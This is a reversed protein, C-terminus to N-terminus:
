EVYLNFMNVEYGRLKLYTFLQSRHHFMHTVSETFWHAQTASHEHYFPTTKKTFFEDESMALLYSICKQYGQEMAHALSEATDLRNYKQELQRIADEKKEQMIFLDVEPIAVLHCALEHLTRMNPAPRCGWDEERVKQLLLITSKMAVKMQHFLEDRLKMTNSM